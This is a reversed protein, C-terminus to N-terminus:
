VKCGPWTQKFREKSLDHNYIHDEKYAQFDQGQIDCEGDWGCRREREERERLGRPSKM